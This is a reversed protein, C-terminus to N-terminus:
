EPAESRRTTEAREASSDQNGSGIVPPDFTFWEVTGRETEERGKIPNAECWEESSVCAWHGGDGRCWDCTHGDGEDAQWDDDEIWGEGGCNDCENFIVSSGCRACQNDWYRGDRPCKGIVKTEQRERGPGCDGLHGQHLMCRSDGGYLGGCRETM